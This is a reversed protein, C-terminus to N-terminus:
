QRVSAYLSSFAPVVVLPDFKRAWLETAASGRQDLWDPDSLARDIQRAWTHADQAGVVQDRHPVLEPLGGRDSVLCARGRSAAEIAVLPAPDPWQSPVVLLTRASHLAGIELGSRWGLFDTQSSIGLDEALSILSPLQPGEGVVALRPKLQSKALARLALDIGKNPALRGTFLLDYPEVPAAQAPELRPVAAYIVSTGLSPEFRSDRMRDAVYQSVCHQHTHVRQSRLASFREFNEKMKGPRRSGCGHRLMVVSCKAVSPTIGCEGLSPSWKTGSPCYLGHGHITSVVPVDPWDSEPLVHGGHLHVVDPRSRRVAEALTAVAAPDEPRPEPAAILADVGQELQAAALALVYNRVGGSYHLTPAYHLIRM